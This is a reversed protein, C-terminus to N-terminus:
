NNNNKLMVGKWILAPNPDEKLNESFFGRQRFISIKGGESKKYIFDLLDTMTTFNFGAVVISEDNIILLDESNFSIDTDTWELWLEPRIIKNEIKIEKALKLNRYSKSATFIIRDPSIKQTEVFNLVKKIGLDFKSSELIDCVIFIIKQQNKDEIFFGIEVEDDISKSIHISKIALLRTVRLFQYLRWKVALYSLKEKSIFIKYIERLDESTLSTYDVSPNFDQQLQYFGEIENGDIDASTTKSKTKQKPEQQKLDAIIQLIESKSFAPTIHKILYQLREESKDLLTDYYQFSM